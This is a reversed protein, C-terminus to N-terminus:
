KISELLKEAIANTDNSRKLDHEWVRIITWGERRLREEKLKDRLVNKELKPLWYNRNTKPVHSHIPCSHWFCGDVFIAIKRSPFAIDIKEEGYNIRFRLGKSWLVKRLCIEPLTNKSHIASM